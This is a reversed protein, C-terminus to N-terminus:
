AVVSRWQNEHTVDQTIFECGLEDAWRQGAATQVDTITVKAGESVLRKAITAGLGCAGGTVLAIKDDIRPM